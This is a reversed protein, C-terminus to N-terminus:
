SVARSARSKIKSKINQYVICLTFTVGYALIIRLAFQVTISTIGLRAMFDNAIFIVLCHFLYMNFSVADIYRIFTINKIMTGLSFTFATAGICYVMHLNELFPFYQGYVFAKYTFIVDAASLAIFILAFPVFCKKMFTCFSAYNKGAYCGAVWYILYTTFIRDNYSAIKEFNALFQPIYHKAALMVMLSIILAPLPKTKETMKIWLPMLLYFQMIAVIFYFPSVLSGSLVYFVIDKISFPFYGNRMFYIYYILVAFVYPILVTKIRKSIFKEYSFDNQPKLFLKMGSLFIFGQVVFASLRWPIFTLTYPLSPKIYNSVPHSACHIFVVLVCLLTNLFMIEQQKKSNEM